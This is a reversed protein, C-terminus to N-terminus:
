TTAIEINAAGVECHVIFLSCHVVIRQVSVAARQIGDGAKRRRVLAQAQLGGNRLSVCIPGISKAMVPLTPALLVFMFALLM